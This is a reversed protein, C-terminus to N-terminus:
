TPRQAHVHKHLLLLNEAESNITVANHAMVEEASRKGYFTNIDGLRAELPLRLRSHGPEALAGSYIKRKKRNRKTPKKNM